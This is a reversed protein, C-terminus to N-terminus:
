GCVKKNPNCPKGGGDSDSSGKTVTVSLSTNAVAGNNDTVTLTYVHTGERLKLEVTADTSVSSGSADKWSYGTISGDPDSSESADLTVTATKGRIIVAPEPSSSAVAVPAINEVPPPPADTTDGMSPSASNQNGYIDRTIVRYSYFTDASLGNAVFTQSVQWDSDTCGNGGAVCSFYYEVSGSDDTALVATMSFTNEGTAHPATQWSMTAPSPPTSDVSGAQINGELFFMGTSAYDSFDSNTNNGVGDVQLYYRGATVSAVVNASTDDEPDDLDVIALSSDLLTLEIDLNAGRMDARTFSHWAPTATINLSSAESLDLYFWDVDNRNDIIGKNNALLNEPDVEPSSVLINGDPEVLLATALGASDGHDDGAFGLDGEIIAMDDQLNNANPYEGKSWQTVNNYYLMGMIPAWSVLGTGHGEYYATGGSVGDHSLGINHGFEHAAADATYNPLGATNNYYVLTPSYRSVYDSSGFVNVYAVGAYGQDPMARGNADTDHTILIHGTTSTFVAPEETTVDINFPAYDEAVRHWIEHIRDLEDQTFNAVTSPSDNGSPDFPLGVYAGSGWATDTFTHGDFDLYLVNSAGPRTHLLFALDPDIPTSETTPATEDPAEVHEPLFTDAYNIEGQANVHLSNLDEVPFEFRQLWGLAKGRAKAPLGELDKRFQGPPLDQITQPQGIGYSRGHNDTSQGQAFVAGSSLMMLLTAWIAPVHRKCLIM